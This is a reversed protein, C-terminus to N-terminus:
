ASREGDQPIPEASAVPKRKLRSARTRLTSPSPLHKPYIRTVFDLIFRRFEIVDPAAEIGPTHKILDKATGTTIPVGTLQATVSARFLENFDPLIANDSVTSLLQRFQGVDGGAQRIQALAGAIGREKVLYQLLMTDRFDAWSDIHTQPVDPASRVFFRHPPFPDFKLINELLGPITRLSAPIYAKKLRCELRTVVPSDQWRAASRNKDVREALKNYAVFSLDSEASGWQVTEIGRRTSYEVKEWEKLNRAKPVFANDRFWKVTLPVDVALDLRIIKAADPERFARAITARITSADMSSVGRLSISGVNRVNRYQPHFKVAVPLAPELVLWGGQRYGARGMDVNSILDAAEDTLAALDPAAMVIKDIMRDGRLRVYIDVRTKEEVELRRVAYLFPVSPNQPAFKSILMKGAIWNPKPDYFSVRNGFHTQIDNVYFPKRTIGKSGSRLGARFRPTEFNEVGFRM